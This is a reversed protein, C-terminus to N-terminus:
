RTEERRHDVGIQDLMQLLALDGREAHVRNRAGCASLVHVGEGRLRGDAAVLCHQDGGILQRLEERQEGGGGAVDRRGLHQDDSGANGSQHRDAGSASEARHDFGIVCSRDHFLLDLTEAALVDLDIGAGVKGACAPIGLFRGVVDKPPLLFTQGLAGGFRVHDDRSRGHRSTRSWPQDRSRGDLAHRGPRDDDVEGGFSAAVALQGLLALDDVAMTDRDDSREIQRARHRNVGALHVRLVQLVQQGEHDVLVALERDVHVVVDNGVRHDRVVPLTMWSPVLCRSAGGAVM